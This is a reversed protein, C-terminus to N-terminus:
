ASPQRLRRVEERLEATANRIEQQLEKREERRERDLTRAQRTLEGQRERWKQDFDKLKSQLSRLEENVHQKVVRVEESTPVSRGEIQEAVSRFRAWAAQRTTGLAEGVDEWSAGASVADAVLRSQWASIDKFLKRSSALASLTEPETTTRKWSELLSHPVEAM